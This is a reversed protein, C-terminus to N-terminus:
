PSATYTCIYIYIYVCVCVCVRLCPNTAAPLRRPAGLADGLRAGAGACAGLPSNSNRSPFHLPHGPNTQTRSPKPKPQKTKTKPTRTQKTRNQKQKKNNKKNPPVPSVREESLTNTNTSLLHQKRAKKQHEKKPSLTAIQEDTEAGLQQGRTSTTTTCNADMAVCACTCPGKM